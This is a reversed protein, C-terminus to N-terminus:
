QNDKTWLNLKIKYFGIGATEDVIELDLTSFFKNVVM